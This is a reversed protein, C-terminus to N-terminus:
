ITEFRKMKSVTRSKQQTHIYLKLLIIVFFPSKIMTAKKATLRFYCLEYFTVNM